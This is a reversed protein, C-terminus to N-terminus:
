GWWIPRPSIALDKECWPCQDQEHQQALQVDTERATDTNRILLIHSPYRVGIVKTLCWQQFYLVTTVLYSCIDHWFDDLNKLDYFEIINQETSLSSTSRHEYFIMWLTFLSCLVICFTYTNFQTRCYNIVNLLRGQIPVGIVLFVVDTVTQFRYADMQLAMDM